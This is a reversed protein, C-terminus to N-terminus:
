RSGTVSLIQQDTAHIFILIVRGLACLLVSKIKIYLRIYDDYVKVLRLVLEYIGSKMCVLM